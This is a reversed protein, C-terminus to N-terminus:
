AQWTVSCLACMPWQLTPVHQRVKQEVKLGVKKEAVQEAELVTTALRQLDKPIDKAGIKDDM